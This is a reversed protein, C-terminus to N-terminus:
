HIVPLPAQELSEAPYRLGWQARLHDMTGAIAVSERHPMVPHEILGETVAEKVARAEYGYGHGDIARERDDRIGASTEMCTRTPRYFPPGLQIHGRSGTLLANGPTDRQLSGHLLARGGCAFELTYVGYGDVGTTTFGASGTVRTPTGFIQHALAITYIGVDLLAGGAQTPDFLRSRPDYPPCISFEAFLTRPEGITNDALLGHFDQMVPLFRNWMAEMLFTDHRRATDVLRAVEATNIGMPKECLVPLGATLATMAADVHQTHPTAIYVADVDTRGVLATPHDLIAATPSFERAFRAGREHQRSVVVSITMDSQRSLDEALKRAIQGTGIIAWRFATPTGM